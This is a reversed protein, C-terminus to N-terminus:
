RMDTNIGEDVVWGLWGAKAPVPQWGGNQFAILQDQLGGWAGTAPTKPIYCDGETLEAPPASLARSVLTLQICADLAPMAENYTVHKDAQSALLLPLNLRNTRSM